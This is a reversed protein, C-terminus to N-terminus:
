AAAGRSCIQRQQPVSSVLLFRKGKNHGKRSEAARNQDNWVAGEKRWVKRRFPVEECKVIM